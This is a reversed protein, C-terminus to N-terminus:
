SNLTGDVERLVAAVDGTSFSDIKNLSSGIIVGLSRDPTRFRDHFDSAGVVSM